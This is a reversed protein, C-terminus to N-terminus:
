SKQYIQKQWCSQKFTLSLSESMESVNAMTRFCSYSKCVCRSQLKDIWTEESYEFFSHRFRLCDHKKQRSLLFNLQLDFSFEKMEQKKKKEDYGKKGNLPPNKFDWYLSFVYSSYM